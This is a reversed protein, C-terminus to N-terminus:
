AYEDREPIPMRRGRLVIHAADDAVDEFDMWDKDTLWHSDYEDHAHQALWAAHAAADRAKPAPERNAITSGLTYTAVDPVGGRPNFGFLEFVLAWDRPSRHLSMRTAAPYVYGNDLCLFAVEANDLIDLIEQARAM